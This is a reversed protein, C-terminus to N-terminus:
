PQRNSCRRGCVFVNLEAVETAGFKNLSIVYYYVQLYQASKGESNEVLTLIITRNISLVLFLNVGLTSSEIAM